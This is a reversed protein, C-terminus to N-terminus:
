NNATKRFFVKGPYKEAYGLVLQITYHNGPYPTVFDRIESADTFGVDSAIYGMSHFHGNEVWICSREDPSRM